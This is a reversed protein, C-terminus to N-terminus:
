ITGYYIFLIHRESETIVGSDHMAELYGAISKRVDEAARELGDAYLRQRGRKKSELKAKFPTGEIKALVERTM